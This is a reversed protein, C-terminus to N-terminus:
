NENKVDGKVKKIIKEIDEIDEELLCRSKTYCAMEGCANLINEIEDLANELKYIKDEYDIYNEVLGLQRAYTLASNYECSCGGSCWEHIKDDPTGLYHFIMDKKTLYDGYDAPEDSIASFDIITNKWKWKIIKEKNM